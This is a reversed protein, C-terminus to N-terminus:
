THRDQNVQSPSGPRVFGTTFTRGYIDSNGRRIGSNSCFSKSVYKRLPMDASPPLNAPPPTIGASVLLNPLGEAPKTSEVPAATSTMGLDVQEDGSSQPKRQITPSKIDGTSHTEIVGAGFFSAREDDVVRQLPPTNTVNSTPVQLPMDTQAPLPPSNHAIEGSLPEFNSPQSPIGKDAVEQIVPQSHSVEHTETRAIESSYDKGAVPEPVRSALTNGGYERLTDSQPQAPHNEEVVRQLTSPDSADSAEVRLPMDARTPLVPARTSIETHVSQTALQLTEEVKPLTPVTPLTYGHEGSPTADRLTPAQGRDGKGRQVLPQFPLSNEGKEFSTAGTFSHTNSEGDVVRQVPPQSTTRAKHEEFSSEGSLSPAPTGEVTERQVAPSAIVESPEVWLDLDAQIPLASPPPGIDARVRQLASVHPLAPMSPPVYGSQGPPTTGRVQFTKSGEDPVQQVSPPSANTNEDNRPDTHSGEDAVQQVLPHSPPM